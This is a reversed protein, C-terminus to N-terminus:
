NRIKTYMKAYVTISLFTCEPSDSSAFTPMKSERHKRESTRLEGLVEAV